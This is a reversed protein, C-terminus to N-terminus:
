HNVIINNRLDVISNFECNTSFANVEPNIKKILDTLAKGPGAEIFIDFGDEIMNEITLQWKVPSCVQMATLERAEEINCSYPKGTINSYIPIDPISYNVTDLYDKLKFAAEKMMPSHFAGSVPLMVGIGRKEKVLKRFSEINKRDGSVVIQGPSNYNVPYVGSEEALKELLSRELKMVAIMAGDQNESIESMFEARKVVLSFGDKKSVVGAFALASIEGLSFGAVGDPIIGVEKIAEGAAIDTTYLCPQTNRTLSLEEKEGEFCQKITGQRQNESIEFITRGIVSNEYISKAMGPFQAGQGSFVFAIKGM